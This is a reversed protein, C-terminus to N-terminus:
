PIPKVSCSPFGKKVKEIATNFAIKAIEKGRETKAHLRPKESFIKPTVKSTQEYRCLYTYHAITSFHIAMADCANNIEESSKCPQTIKKFTESAQVSSVSLLLAGILPITRHIPM